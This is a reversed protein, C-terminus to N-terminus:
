VRIFSSMMLCYFNLVKYFQSPRILMFGSLHSGLDHAYKVQNEDYLKYKLGM